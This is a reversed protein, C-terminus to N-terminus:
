SHGTELRQSLQMAHAVMPALYEMFRLDVTRWSTSSIRRGLYLRGIHQENKILPILFVEHLSVTLKGTALEDHTPADSTNTLIIDNHMQLLTMFTRHIPQHSVQKDIPYRYTVQWQASEGPEVIYGYEASMLRCVWDLIHQYTQQQDTTILDFLQPYVDRKQHIHELTHIEQKIATLTNVTRALPDHTEAEETNAQVQQRLRDIVAGLKETLTTM